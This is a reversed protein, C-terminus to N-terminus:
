TRECEKWRVSWAKLDRALKINQSLNSQNLVHNTLIVRYLDLKKLLPTAMTGLLSLAVTKGITLIVPMTPRHLCPDNDM